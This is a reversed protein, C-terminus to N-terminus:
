LSSFSEIKDMAVSTSTLGFAFYIANTLFFCSQLLIILMKHFFEFKFFAADNMVLLYM